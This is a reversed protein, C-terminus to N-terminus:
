SKQPHALEVISLSFTQNQIRISSSLHNNHGAIGFYEKDKLVIACHKTLSLPFV